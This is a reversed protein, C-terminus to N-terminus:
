LMSVSERLVRGLQHPPFGDRTSVHVNLGTFDELLRETRVLDYWTFPRGPDYAILIDLDSDPREGGRARSGFISLSVIGQDRIADAHARLQAIVAERDKASAPAKTNRKEIADPM